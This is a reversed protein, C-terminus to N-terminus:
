NFYNNFEERKNNFNQGYFLGHEIENYVINATNKFDYNRITDITKHNKSNNGFLNGNFINNYSEIGNSNSSNSLSDFGLNKNKQNKNILSKIPHYETRCSKSLKTKLVSSNNKEHNLKLKQIKKLDFELDKKISDRNVISPQYKDNYTM